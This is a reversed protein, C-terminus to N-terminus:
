PAPDVSLQTFDPESELLHHFYRVCADNKDMKERGMLKEAVSRRKEIQLTWEWSGDEGETASSGLMYRRGQFIVDSYWGWDETDPDSVRVEPRAQDRLWLM